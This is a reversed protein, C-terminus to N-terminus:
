CLPFRRQRGLQPELGECIRGLHASRGSVLLSLQEGMHEVLASKGVGAPGIILLHKRQAHL